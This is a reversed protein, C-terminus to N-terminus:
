TWSKLLSVTIPVLRQFYSSKHVVRCEPVAGTEVDVYLLVICKHVLPLSPLGLWLLLLPICGIWYGNSSFNQWGQVSQTQTISAQADWLRCCVAVLTQLAQLGLFSSIDKKLALQYLLQYLFLFAALPVM